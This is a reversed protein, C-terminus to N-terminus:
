VCCILYLDFIWFFSANMSIFCCYVFSFPVYEEKTEEALDKLFKTEEEASAKAAKTKKKPSALKKLMQTKNKAVASCM